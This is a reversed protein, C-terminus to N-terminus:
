ACRVGCGRTYGSIVSFGIPRLARLLQPTRVPTDLRCRFNEAAVAWTWFDCRLDYIGWSFKLTIRGMIHAISEEMKWKNTLSYVNM